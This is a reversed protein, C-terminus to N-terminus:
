TFKGRSIIFITSGNMLYNKGITADLNIQHGNSIFLTDKNLKIDISYKVKFREIVYRTKEKLKCQIVQASKSIGNVYIILNILEDKYNDEDLPERPYIKPSFDYYLKERPNTKESGFSNESLSFDWDKIPFKASAIPNAYKKTFYRAKNEFLDRNNIYENAIKLSHPKELNPWYFITYLDILLKKVCDSPNWPNIDSYNFNGLAENDSKTINVNPHYIPTKFQIKPTKEPYNKPFILYFYFFGRCYPTDKPGLITLRWKFLNDEEVLGVTIGLDTIPYQNLDKFEKKIRKIRELSYKSNM